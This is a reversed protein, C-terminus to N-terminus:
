LKENVDRTMNDLLTKLDGTTIGMLNEQINYKTLFETLVSNGWDQALAFEPYQLCYLYSDIHKGPCLSSLFDRQLSKISPPGGLVWKGEKVGKVVEELTSKSTM